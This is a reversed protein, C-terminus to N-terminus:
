SEIKPYSGFVPYQVSVADRFRRSVSSSLITNDLHNCFTCESKNGGGM